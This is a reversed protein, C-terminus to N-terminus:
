QCTVELVFQPRLVGLGALRHASIDAVVAGGELLHFVGRGRAQRRPHILEDLAQEIDHQHILDRAHRGGEIVELEPQMAVGGGQLRRQAVAQVIQDCILGQEEVGRGPQVLEPQGARAAVDLLHDLGVDFVGLILRVIEGLADDLGLLQPFGLQPQDGVVM